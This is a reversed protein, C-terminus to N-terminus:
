SVVMGVLEVPGGEIIATTNLVCKGPAPEVGAQCPVSRHPNGAGDRLVAYAATGGAPADEERGDPILPLAGTESDVTGCPKQLPIEALLVDDGDHITVCAPDTEHEDLLDRLATNSAVIVVPSWDDFYPAAM